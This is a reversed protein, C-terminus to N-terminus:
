PYLGRRAKERSVKEVGLSLAATRMSIRRSLALERVQRFARQMLDRLKGNVQEESWM